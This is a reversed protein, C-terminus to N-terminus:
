KLKWNKWDDGVATSSIVTPTQIKGDDASLQKVKSIVYSSLENLNVDGQTSQLKKLLFYTFRGHSQEDYAGATQDGTAATLVVMNGVPQDSKVKIAVGRASALMDGERKAGSFCADLFVTASKCGVSGIMGYLKELKFATRVDNGLADVPLLHASKSEEDPVGHGAYYFIVNVNGDNAEMINKLWMVGGLMQNKTADKVFRVHKDEIGLTKLCYQKFIEGDNRAFPVTAVDTYNENAIILAYTNENKVNTEPINKDVDSGLSAIAIEARNEDKADIQIKRSSLTQNLKLTITNNEAYKGYKERIVVKVPIETSTYTNPVIASYVLSASKGGKLTSYASRDNSDELVIVGDPFHVDVKVDEANGYQVNQLLVQLDFPKKRELTYSGGDSTVTYDVVKILPSVFKRTNVTLQVPDTGFGNPEDIQLTFEVSGDVTNMNSSVPIEVTQTEGAAINPLQKSKFTLGQTNGTGSIKATCGVGDGKGSNKIEFVIKTTENADIANNGGPEVFKLSGHVFDLIAPKVEKAIRFSMPASINSQAFLSLAGYSIFFLLVSTRKM